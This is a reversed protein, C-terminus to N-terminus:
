SFRAVTAGTQALQNGNTKMLMFALGGAILILPLSIVGTTKNVANNIVGRGADILKGGLDKAGSVVSAIIEGGKAAVTQIGHATGTIVSKVDGYVQAVASGAAHYLSSIGDGIKGVFSFFGM